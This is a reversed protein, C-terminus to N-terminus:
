QFVTDDIVTAIQITASGDTSTYTTMGTTTDATGSNWTNDNALTVSSTDNTSNDNVNMNGGDTIILSNNNDTMAIVDAVSLNTIDVNDSLNLTEVNQISAYSLDITANIHVTDEGAGTNISTKADYADINNFSSADATLPTATTDTSISDSVQVDTTYEKAALGTGDFSITGATDLIFGGQNNVLSISTSDNDVDTVSVSWTGNNSETITLVPADNTGTMNVVIDTTDTAGNDDTVTVPITVTLTDGENLYQYAADSPDFSYEGTQANISFGATAEATYTATANQDVDSSTLTGTIVAADENAAVAAVANIVPADNTGTMNVVIDTTDTAGNDDTVTVPITVTLTDGENLYQYAADSPDFSYEGTQANISFGATAEATYTATANQDVDSSTLTGTIVAADENAAVAAVANIVPADNTGNVTITLTSASAVGYEDSMTYAVTVNVSDGVNLYDFDSGLTFRLQNNEISATGLNQGINVTDLTLVHNNDVDTDNDLVDVLITENETTNTTDLFAVPADNTGTVTITVVEHSSAGQDDTVTFNLAVEETEGQELYEFDMATNFRYAGTTANLTLVGSNVPISAEYTLVADHDADTAELQGAVDANENVTNLGIYAIPTDNVDFVGLTFTESVSGGQSDNATVTIAIYGEDNASPNGSLTKTVSDFNLWEPLPSGDNMTASYTLVDEGGFAVLDADTFTNDPITYSFDGERQTAGGDLSVFSQFGIHDVVTPIDNTGTVTIVVSARDTTGHNDSVEYTFSINEEQGASLYQFDNGTTYIYSGDENFTLAGKGTEINDVLAYTLTADTDVDIATVQGTIEVGDENATNVSEQAVPTDNTGTLNITINMTDTATGDSVVVPINLVRQEGEYMSNYATHAANFSYSGDNNLHFGAPAIAGQPLSFTLTSDVDVDSADLQGQLTPVGNSSTISIPKDARFNLTIEGTMDNSNAGAIVEAYSLNYDSVAAYYEGPQLTVTIVANSYNGAPSGADDDQAIQENSADNRIIFLEPDTTAGDTTITLTTIESISFYTYGISGTGESTINHVDNLVTGTQTAALSNSETVNQIVDVGAVPADNTGAVTLTVEAPESNALSDNAIYNFTVTLNDGANLANFNDSVSYSGNENITVISDDVSSGDIKVSGAVLAYTHTDTIDLDSATPLTASFTTLGDIAEDVNVNQAVITPQDNSGVLTLTLTSDSVLSTGDSNNDEVSYNILVEATEGLALYDYQSGPTFTIENGNQTLLGAASTTASNAVLSLSDTIDTTMDNAIVDVTISTNEDTSALDANAIPTFENIDNINITIDTEVSLKGDTALVTLTYTDKAEADLNASGDGNIARIDGYNDISFMNDENGGVINFSIVADSDSDHALVKGLVVGTEANENINYADSSDIIPADNTGTITITATAIDSDVTGDNVIYSFTVDTTEGEALDNFDGEFTFSGDSNVSVGDVSGVQSYSVTDGDIDQAIPLNGSFTNLGTLSETLAISLNEVTPVDNSGTITVTVNKPASDLTGDNAIFNFTVEQTEGDDLSSFDGNITYNGNADITVLANDPQEGSLAYTFNNSDVDTANALSGNIIADENFTASVSNVVPADNTGNITITITGTATGDVSTATFVETLTDGDSLANVTSNTNDVSYTWNGDADISFTGFDAELTQAVVQAEATDQDHIEITGSITSPEVDENISEAADSVTAADNVNAVAINLAQTAYNGVADTATINVQYQGNQDADLPNEFDPTAIFSLQGSNDITFLNADAGSLSFSVNSADTIEVHITEQSNENIIFNSTTTFIPPTTDANIDDSEVSYAEVIDEGYQTLDVSTSPARSPAHNVPEAETQFTDIAAISSNLITSDEGASTELSDLVDWVTATEDNQTAEYVSDSLEIDFKGEYKVDSKLSLYNLTVSSFSDTSVLMQGELLVDGAQVTKESGDQSIIKVEGEVEGIKGIIKSSNKETNSSM